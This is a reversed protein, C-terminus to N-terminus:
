QKQLIKLDQTAKDGAAVTVTEMVPAYAEREDGGQLVESVDEEPVVVLQYTGPVVADFSYSGGPRVRGVQLGMRRGPGNQEQSDPLLLVRLGETTAADSQVTGSVSGFNASIVLTLAGGVGASLDLMGGSAQTTGLQMSKVYGPGGVWTVRYRGPLVKELTFAGNSDIQANAGFGTGDIGQLLLQPGRRRPPRSPDAPAPKADDTEYEVQGTLDAAAILRLEIGDIDSAGVTVDVPATAMMAGGPGNRQASIRYEGPALRWLAFTGDKKVQTGYGNRMFSGGWDNMVIGGFQGPNDRQRVVALFVDEAGQPAGTVKGSIRVIPTRVLRIENGGAEGGPQVSIIAGGAADLAGPYYTESYHVETTGDTRIEPPTQPEDPTAKIRYKGPTLGGIRFRGQADSQSGQGGRASEANVNCNEVPEGDADVVTGAIAGAPTLKLTLDDKHDGAKLVFGNSGHPSFIFGLRNAGIGYNGAALGTISFKGEATTMAGFNQQKGAAFGGLTVHARPLPDGTIANVVVGAVSASNEDAPPAQAFSAASAALLLVLARVAATGGHRM